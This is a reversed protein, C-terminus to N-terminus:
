RASFKLSVELVRSTVVIKTLMPINMKTSFNAGVSSLRGRDIRIAIADTESIDNLTVGMYIGINNHM